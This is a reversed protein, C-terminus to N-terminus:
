DPTGPTPKSPGSVPLSQANYKSCINELPQDLCLIEDQPSTGTTQWHAFGTKCTAQTFFAPKLFSLYMHLDILTTYAYPESYLNLESSLSGLHKPPGHDMSEADNQM